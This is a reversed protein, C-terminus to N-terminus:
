LSFCMSPLCHSVCFVEVWLGLFAQPWWLRSIIVAVSEGEWAEPFLVGASVKIESKAEM